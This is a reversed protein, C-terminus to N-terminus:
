FPWLPTFFYAGASKKKAMDSFTRVKAASISVLFVHFFRVALGFGAAKFPPNMKDDCDKRSDSARQPAQLNDRRSYSIDM